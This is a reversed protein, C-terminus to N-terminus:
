EDAAISAGAKKTPVCVGVTSHAGDWRSAGLKEVEAPDSGFKGRRTGSAVVKEVCWTVEFHVDERRASRMHWAPSPM